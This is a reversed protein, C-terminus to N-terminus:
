KICNKIAQLLEELKIPKAIHDNMGVALSKEKDEKFANASLAIIPIEEGGNLKRIEKTAEYGNMVPMQIDMLIADYYDTGMQQVKQLAQKGDEVSDIIVGTDILSDITIEKNFANDEALLIKKEKLSYTKNIITFDIQSEKYKEIQKENMLKFPLEVTFTSGQNIKSEVKISGDALDIIKKVISLGLGAGEQKSVTATQERSFPEFLHNLFEESMGIGTDKVTFRFKATGDSNNEIQETIFDVSGGVNTYKIANSVLNILVENLHLEDGLIYPNSINKTTYTLCISKPAALSQSMQYVAESASIISMPDNSISLKGSEIRSMELIENILSLLHNGSIKIKKLSDQVKEKSDSHLAVNTYGLIANMPTRIDHSMNFLFETKTQNLEEYVAREIVRRNIVESVIFSYIICLGLMYGISYAPADPYIMQFIGAGIPAINFMLVYLYDKPKVGSKQTFYKKLSYLALFIYTMYQIYFLYYRIHTSRYIGDADVSFMMKNFINIGLLALQFLFIFNFVISFIQLRKEERLYTIVFKLWMLPTFAACIHFMTSFVFLLTDNKILHSAFIGWTGDIICFATTWRILKLFVKDTPNTRDLSLKIKAPLIYLVLACVFATVSYLIHVM